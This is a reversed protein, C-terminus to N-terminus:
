LYQTVRWCGMNTCTWSTAGWAADVGVYTADIDPDFAFYYKQQGRPDNYLKITLVLSSCDQCGIRRFKQAGVRSVDAGLWIENEVENCAIRFRGIVTTGIKETHSVYAVCGSGHDPPPPMASAAGQTSVAATVALVVIACFARLSITLNRM